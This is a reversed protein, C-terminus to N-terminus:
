YDTNVTEPPTELVEPHLLYSRMKRFAAGYTHGSATREDMTIGVPTYKVTKFSGDKQEEVKKESIGMAMFNSVTGFNYIHHYISGTRISALNTICLSAHFPLDRIMSMPLLGHKDMWMLTTVAVRCVIHSKTLTRMLVDVTNVQTAQRERNVFENIKDNVDFITDTPEFTLKAMTSDAEGQRMVVMAVSIEKRAYIRSNVIFRNLEPYESMVRVYAALILAMHSIAVGEKRKRNIYAQMPEEALMVTTYNMADNRDKMIYPVITYMPNVNTVRIGDRRKM